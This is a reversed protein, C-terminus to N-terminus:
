GRRRVVLRRAAFAGDGRELARRDAEAGGGAAEFRATAGRQFGCCLGGLWLTIGIVVALIVELRSERDAGAFAAALSCRPPAPCRCQCTCGESAFRDAFASSGGIQWEHRQGGYDAIARVSPVDVPGQWFIVALAVVAAVTASPSALM